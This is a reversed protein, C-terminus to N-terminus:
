DGVNETTLQEIDIDIDLEINSYIFHVKPLEGAKLSVKIDTLGTSEKHTIPVGDILIDYNRASITKGEADNKLKFELKKM